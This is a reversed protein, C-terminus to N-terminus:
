QGIQSETRYVTPTRGTRSRIFRTFGAGSAFGLHAAIAGSKAGTDTLLCLAAHLRRDDLLRGPGIGTEAKCARSLLTQSIGISRAVDSVRAGPDFTDSALRGCFARCIVRSRADTGPVVLRNEIVRHLWLAILAAISRAALQYGSLQQSLERNMMDLLSSLQGIAPKDGLRTVIPFQPFPTDASVPVELVHAFSRAGLAVAALEGSPFFALTQASLGHHTGDALLTGQGRTVWLLLHRKRAHPLRLRWDSGFNPSSLIRHSVDQTAPPDYIM